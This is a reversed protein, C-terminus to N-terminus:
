AHHLGRLDISGLHGSGGFALQLRKGLRYALECLRLRLFISKLEGLKHEVLRTHHRVRCGVGSCLAYVALTIQFFEQATYALVNLVAFLLVLIRAYRVKDMFDTQKGVLIFVGIVGDRADRHHGYMGGFTKLERYHENDPQLLVEERRREALRLALHLLLPSQQVYGDGAGFLLAIERVCRLSPSVPLNVEAVGRPEQFIDVPLVQLLETRRARLGRRPYLLRRLERRPSMRDDVVLLGTILLRARRCLRCGCRTREFRSCAHFGLRLLLRNNGLPFFAVPNVM